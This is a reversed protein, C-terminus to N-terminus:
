NRVTKRKGRYEQVLAAATWIMSAAFLACLVGDAVYLATQWWPTIPVVTTTSSIGNMASSHAVSFLIRKAALRMAWAMESYGEEFKVFHNDTKPGAGDPLDSGGVFTGYAQEFYPNVSQSGDMDGYADTVIFGKMGCEGRLFDTGLEKCAAGSFTGFRSFSAMTGFAGGETIPLEFARLYNERLAQESIWGCVGHRNDEQDNLACHKNLVHVGHEEIGKTEEAGVLGTLMADESYYECTRGLYPSRHINLGLGYLNSCGSWIGDEGIIQGVEYSLTKNMAAALIGNAPFGTPKKYGDQDADATLNGEADVHGAAAEMRYALGTNNTYYGNKLAWGGFGNPGNEDNTEPKAISAIAETLHAGNSCLLVTEEWTLQDLFTDWLPDFFSIPDGNDDVRMDVLMLGASQGYTPYEGDDQPIPQSYAQPIQNDMTYKGVGEPVQAYMERVMQETLSLQVAGNEIDMSVAAWNDRDYYEVSNDGRGSYRNIDSFDFLNTVRAYTVGDLSSVVDSYAYKEDDFDLHFKVAYSADGSGVMKDTQISVGDAQKAMLLNNVAEHANGGVLVYYDGEQLVYGQAGYADYSAFYKEDVTITLTESEGPALTQTKGFDLLMVSPIQIQNDRCYDTYPKAIYIPVSYKGSYTDSTNTVTASVVYDRDGQREVGVNSLAFQAYSLGYGFPYAVVSEYDYEGVNPTGLVLDEYRTETYKYGLYMGEQYVTYTSFTSENGGEPDVIGFEDVNDYYNRGYNVHVPNMANDMWMTDPLRGSPSVEGNLLKGVAAGGTGLAGVWLAADIGYSPDSLFDGEIMGAYNILVVIKKIVGSDKLAKLGELISAENANLQLYDPGLGDGSDIGDKSKGILDTGEGGIRGIVMIAADGYQSVSSRASEDFASWPADNISLLNNGFGGLSESGRKYQAWDESTYLSQIVPNVAFGADTLSAVFSVADDVSITGSGTGGYVPDYAAAGFLSVKGGASLPLVGNDNKLLVAGEELVQTAKAHGAARLDQLNTYDSKYYETDQNQEGTEVIEFTQAGLANSVVSANENAIVTGTLMLGALFMSVVSTTKRLLKYKM